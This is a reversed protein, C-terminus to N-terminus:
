FNLLFNRPFHLLQSSWFGFVCGLVRYTSVLLISLCACSGNTGALGTEALAIHPTTLYSALHTVRILHVHPSCLSRHQWSTSPRPSRLSQFDTNSPRNRRPPASGSIMLSSVHPTHARLLTLRHNVTHRHSFSHLPGAYHFKPFEPSLNSRIERDKTRPVACLLVHRRMLRVSLRTIRLDRSKFSRNLGLQLSFDPDPTPPDHHRPEGSLIRALYSSVSRAPSGTM